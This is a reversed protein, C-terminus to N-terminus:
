HLAFAFYPPLGPVEFASEGDGPPLHLAMGVSQWLRLTAVRAGRAQVRIIHQKFDWWAATSLM